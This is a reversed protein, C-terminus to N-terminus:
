LGGPFSSLQPELEERASPNKGLSGGTQWGPWRNCKAFWHQLSVLPRHAM